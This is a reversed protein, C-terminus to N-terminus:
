TRESAKKGSKTNRINRPTRGKPPARLELDTLHIRPRGEVDVLDAVSVDLARAIAALVDLTPNRSTGREIEAFYRFSLGIRM